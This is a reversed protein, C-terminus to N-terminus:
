PRIFLAAGYAEMRKVLLEVDGELVVANNGERDYDYDYRGTADLEMFNFPIDISLNATQSYVQRGPPYEISYRKIVPVSKDYGLEITIRWAAGIAPRAELEIVGGEEIGIVNSLSFVRIEKSDPIKLRTGKQILIGKGLARTNRLNVFISGERKQRGVDAVVFIKVATINPILEKKPKIVTNANDYYEFRLDRIKVMPITYRPIVETVGKYNCIIRKGDWEIRVASDPFYTVDPQYLFRVKRNAKVREKLYMKDNAVGPLHRSGIVFTAQIAKWYPEEFIEAIPPASGPKFPRNLVFPTKTATEFSEHKYTTKHTDDVWLPVFVISRDSVEVIELADNIGYRGIGGNAITQLSEDLFKVFLAEQQGFVYAEFCTKLMLVTVGLLIVAVGIAILLEVLTFGESGLQRLLDRGSGDL